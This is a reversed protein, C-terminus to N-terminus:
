DETINDVSSKETSESVSNNGGEMPKCCEDDAVPISAEVEPHVQVSDDAKIAGRKKICKIVFYAVAGGAALFLLSFPIIVIPQAPFVERYIIYGLLISLVIWIIWATNLLIIKIIYKKDMVVRGTAGM